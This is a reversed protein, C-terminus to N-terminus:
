VLTMQEDWTRAGHLGQECSCEEKFRRDRGTQGGGRWGEDIFPGERTGIRSRYVQM